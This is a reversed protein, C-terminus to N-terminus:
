DAVKKGQWADSLAISLAEFVNDQHWACPGSGGGRRLIFVIEKTKLDTVKCSVQKYKVNENVM